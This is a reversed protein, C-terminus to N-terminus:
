IATLLSWDRWLRVWSEVERFEASEAYWSNVWTVAVGERVREWNEGESGGWEGTESTNM